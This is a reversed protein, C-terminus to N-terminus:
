HTYGMSRLRSGAGLGLVEGASLNVDLRNDRAVFAELDCNDTERPARTSVKVGVVHRLDEMAGFAAADKGSPVLLIEDLGPVDDVDRGAFLVPV